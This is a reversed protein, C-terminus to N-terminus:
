TRLFKRNKLVEDGNEGKTRGEMTMIADKKHLTYHLKSRGNEWEGEKGRREGEISEKGDTCGKEGEM